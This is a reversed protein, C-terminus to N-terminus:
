IQILHTDVNSFLYKHYAITAMNPPWITFFTAGRHNNMGLFGNVWTLFERLELNHSMGQIAVVISVFYDFNHEMSGWAHAFILCCKSIFPLINEDKMLTNLSITTALRVSTISAWKHRAVLLWLYILDNYLILFIIWNFLKLFTSLHM